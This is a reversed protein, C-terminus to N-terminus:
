KSSKKYRSKTEAAIAPKSRVTSKLKIPQLLRDSPLSLPKSLGRIMDNYWDSLQFFDSKKCLAFWTLLAIESDAHKASLEDM